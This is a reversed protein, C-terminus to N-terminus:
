KAIRVVRFGVFSAGFRFESPDAYHRETSRLGWAHVHWSTLPHM